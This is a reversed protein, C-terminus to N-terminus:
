VLRARLYASLADVLTVILYIALILTLLEHEHFLSIAVYIRQGLGGAGVFGMMAAARINVEWRYLAYSVFQPLAQPLIGYVLIRFRSAGAAQLAELPAPDVDELVEAFLKGLVGGTHFGLALVGPFPGLGVMFVFILAWVIEPITRLLNLMAKGLAYLSIRLARAAPGLRRSEYLIGRYLLTRTALLSLPLAICVSVLSGILSIAFTELAGAGADRVTAASLDPPFLRGVYTAIQRFGEGGFLSGLDVGTGHWSWILLAGFGVSVWGATPRGRRVAGTQAM